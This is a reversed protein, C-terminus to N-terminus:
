LVENLHTRQGVIAQDPERRALLVVEEGRFLQAPEIAKRGLKTRVGCLNLASTKALFTKGCDTGIAPPSVKTKKYNPVFSLDSM